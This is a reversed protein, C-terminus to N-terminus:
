TALFAGNEIYDSAFARNIYPADYSNRPLRTAPEKEM